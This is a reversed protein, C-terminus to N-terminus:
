ERVTVELASIGGSAAQRFIRTLLRKACEVCVPRDGPTATDDVPKGCLARDPEGAAYLHAEDNEGTRCPMFTPM